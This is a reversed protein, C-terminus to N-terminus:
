PAVIDTDGIDTGVTVAQHAVLRGFMSRIALRLHVHEGVVIGLLAARGTPEDKIVPWIGNRTPKDFTPM